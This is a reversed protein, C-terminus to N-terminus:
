PTLSEGRLVRLMMEEHNGCTERSWDEHKTIYAMIRLKLSQHELRVYQERDSQKTKPMLNSFRSNIDSRLICLNGLRNVDPWKEDNPPTQPYWHEVSSRYEFAFGKAFNKIKFCKEVDDQRVWLLYDLYNFVIHPTAVGM